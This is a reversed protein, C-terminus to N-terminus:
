YSWQYRKVKGVFERISRTAQAPYEHLLHFCIKIADRYDSESWPLTHKHWATSGYKCREQQFSICLFYTDKNSQNINTIHIVAQIQAGLHCRPVICTKGVHSLLKRTGRGITDPWLPAATAPHSLEGRPSAPSSPKVLIGAATTDVHDPLTGNETVVM